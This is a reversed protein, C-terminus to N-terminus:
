QVCTGIPVCGRGGCCESKSPDCCTNNTCCAFHPPCCQNPTVPCPVEGTPCTAETCQGNVCTENFLCCVGNCCIAFGCFNDGCPTGWGCLGNSCIMGNACCVEGCLATAACCVKAGTASTLCNEGAPCCRDGCVNEPACCAQFEASTGPNYTFCKGNCCAEACAVQGQPCCLDFNPFACFQGQPCTTNGCCTQNPQHCFYSHSIENGGVCGNPDSGPPCCYSIPGYLPDNATTCVAGNDCCAPGNPNGAPGCCFQGGGCCIDDACQVQCCPGGQKGCSDECSWYSYSCGGLGLFAGPIDGAIVQSATAIGCATAQIDCQKRCQDCEDSSIAPTFRSTSTQCTSLSKNATAILDRVSQALSADKSIQVSGHQAQTFPRGDVSGQVTGSSTTLFVHRAGQIAPGYHIEQSAVPVISIAAGVRGSRERTPVIRATSEFLLHSGLDIRQYITTAASSRAGTTTVVSRVTLSQGNHNSSASVTIIRESPLIRRTCVSEGAGLLPANQVSAGAGSLPANQTAGFLPRAWSSGILAVIAGTAASKLADRRSLADAALFKATRDFWHEM